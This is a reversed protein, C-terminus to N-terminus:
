RNLSCGSEVALFTLDLNNKAIETADAEPDFQFEYTQIQM